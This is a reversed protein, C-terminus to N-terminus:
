WPSWIVTQQNEWVTYAELWARLLATIWSSTLWNWEGFVAYLAREQCHYLVSRSLLNICHHSQISPVFSWYRPMTDFLEELLDETPFQVLLQSFFAGVLVKQWDPISHPNPLICLVFQPTTKRLTDMILDQVFIWDHCLIKDHRNRPFLFFFIFKIHLGFCIISEVVPQAVERFASPRVVKMGWVGGDGNGKGEGLVPGKWAWYLNHLDNPEEWPWAPFTISTSADKGSQM